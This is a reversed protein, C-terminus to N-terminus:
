KKIFKIIQANKFKLFYLGNTLNEIYVKENKSVSGKKVEQGLTNLITYEETNELGSIKIFNTTPNPYLKFKNSAYFNDNISLTGDDGVLKINDIGIYDSSGDQKAKIRLRVFTTGDPIVTNITVWNLSNKNLNIGGVSDDNNINNAFSTTNDLLIEYKIFDANDYGKSYYDFSLTMNTLNSVDIADFTMTHYFYGGGNNNNLDQGGFFLDGHAPNDIDGTFEEIVAWIDESGVAILGGETNYTTPNITYNWNESPTSEYSQFFQLTAQANLVTFGFLFLSYITLKTKM